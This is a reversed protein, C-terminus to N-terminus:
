FLNLSQEKSENKGAMTGFAFGVHLCKISKCSLCPLADYGLIKVEVMKEKKTDFIIIKNDHLGVLSLRLMM